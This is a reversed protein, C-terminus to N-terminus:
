SGVTTVTRVAVVSENRFFPHRVPVPMTPRGKFQLFRGPYLHNIYTPLHVM